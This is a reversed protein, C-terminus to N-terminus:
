RALLDFEVSASAQYRIEGAAFGMQENGSDFAEAKAAMSRVMPMPPPAGVSDARLSRVAGLKMDLTEALLEAKARADKAAAVLAQKGLAEAKSSELVPSSVTNVGSKTAQLIYDGIKDLDEIVVQIDRRVRYGVLQQRRAKEDWVYEPNINVGATSLHRDRAGLERAEALYTRVIRNVEAEATALEANVADAALSLRARDPKVSIEGQGTVAVLRPPAEEARALGHASALLLLPLLLKTNM